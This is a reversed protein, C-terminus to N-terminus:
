KKYTVGQFLTYTKKKHNQTSLVKKWVMIADFDKPVAEGKCAFFISQPKSYLGRKIDKKLRDAIFIEMRHEKGALYNIRPMLGYVYADKPAQNKIHEAFSFLYEKHPRPKFVIIMQGLAITVLTYFVIREYAFSTKETIKKGLIMFGIAAPTLIIFFEIFYYRGATDRGAFAHILRIIFDVALFVLLCKAPTSLKKTKLHEKLAVFCLIINFYGMMKVMRSMFDIFAQFTFGDELM